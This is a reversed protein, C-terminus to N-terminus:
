HYCNFIGTCPNQELCATASTGQPCDPATTTPNQTFGALVIGPPAKKLSRGRQSHSDMLLMLESSEM